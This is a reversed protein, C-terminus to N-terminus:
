DEEAVKEFYKRVIDEHKEPINERFSEAAIGSADLSEESGGSSRLEGSNRISPGDGYEPHIEFTIEENGLKAVSKVGFIDSSDSSGAFSGITPNTVAEGAGGGSGSSGFGSGSGVGGVGSFILSFDIPEFGVFTAILIILALVISFISYITVKRLNLFSSVSVKAFDRSVDNILSEVIENNEFLNDMATTLRERMFRYRQEVRHITDTERERYLNIIVAVISFGAAVAPVPFDSLFPLRFVILLLFFLFFFFILKLLIMIIDLEKLYRSMDRVQRKFFKRNAM